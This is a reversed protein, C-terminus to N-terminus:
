LNLLLFLRIDNPKRLLLFILRGKFLCNLQDFKKSKSKINFNPMVIFRNMNKVRLGALFLLGKRDCKM